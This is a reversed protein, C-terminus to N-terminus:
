KRIVGVADRLVAKSESETMQDIRDLPIGEQFRAHLRDLDNETLMSIDESIFNGVGVPQSGM